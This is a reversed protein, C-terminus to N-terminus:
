RVIIMSGCRCNVVNDATAGLSIDGPYMLQQGQVEYPQHISVKQGNAMNHSARERGDLITMWIKQAGSFINAATLLTVAIINKNTESSSQTETTAATRSRSASGSNFGSKANNAVATRDSQADPNVVEGTETDVHVLGSPTEPLIPVRTTGTITAGTIDDIQPKPRLLLLAAIAAEISRDWRKQTSDTIQQASLESRDEVYENQQQRIQQQEHSLQKQELDANSSIQLPFERFVRRYHRVLASKIIPKFKSVDILEGTRNYLRAGRASIQSYIQMLDSFLFRELRIKEALQENLRRVREADRLGLGRRLVGRVDGACRTADM